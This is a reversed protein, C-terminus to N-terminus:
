ESSRKDNFENMFKEIKSNIENKLFASAAKTNIQNTEGIFFANIYPDVFNFIWNKIPHSFLQAMPGFNGCITDIKRGLMQYFIERDNM